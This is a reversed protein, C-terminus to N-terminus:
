NGEGYIDNLPEAPVQPRNVSEDFDALEKVGALEIAITDLKLSISILLSKIEENDM